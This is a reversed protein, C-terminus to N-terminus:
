PSKLPVLEILAALDTLSWLKAASTRALGLGTMTSYQAGHHPGHRWTPGTSSAIAASYAPLTSTTLSLMSSFGSVIRACPTMITGVILRNESPSTTLCTIPALDLDASRQSRASKMQGGAAGRQNDAAAAPPYLSPILPARTPHGSKTSKWWWKM